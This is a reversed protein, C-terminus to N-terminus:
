NEDFPSKDLQFTTKVGNEIDRIDKMFSKEM